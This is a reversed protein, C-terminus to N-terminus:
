ALSSIRNLMANLEDVSSAVFGDQRASHTADHEGIAWQLTTAAKHFRGILEFVSVMAAHLEPTDLVGPDIDQYSDQMGSKQQLLVEKLKELAAHKELTPDILEPADARQVRSAVRDLRKCEEVLLLALRALRRTLFYGFILKLFRPLNRLKPTPMRQVRQVSRTASLISINMSPIHM